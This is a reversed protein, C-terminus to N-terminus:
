RAARGKKILAPWNTVMTLGPNSQAEVRVLFRKGDPAIDYPPSGTSPPLAFLERPASHEVSDAGLKLSVAVLKSDLSEYYLERGDPGWMPYSGGRPSIRFARGPEPFARIYVEVRGSEESQYAVWHPSPEPSFRAWNEEAPTGLYLRPKSVALLTSRIEVLRLMFEPM